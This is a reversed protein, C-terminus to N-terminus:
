LSRIECPPKGTGGRAKGSLYSITLRCHPKPCTGESRQTQIQGRPIHLHDDRKTPLMTFTVRTLHLCLRHKTLTREWMWESEWCFWDEKTLDNKVLSTPHGRSKGLSVPSLSIYEIFVIQALGENKARGATVYIGFDDRDKGAARALRWVM